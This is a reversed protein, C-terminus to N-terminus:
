PNFEQGIPNDEIHDERIDEQEEAITEERDMLDDVVGEDLEINTDEGVIGIDVNGGVGSAEKAAYLASGFVSLAESPTCSKGYEEKIFESQAPQTGSGINAYGPDNYNTKDNNSIGYVYAGTSDVGGVLMNLNEQIKQELQESEAIVGQFFSDKFQHQRGLDAITLGYSSLVLNEIKEQVLNRYEEASWNAVHQVGIGQPPKDQSETIIRSNIKNRLEEALSLAGAAVCKINAAPLQPGITSLKSESHEHEIASMQQTTLLRDAGLIVKPSDSGYGTIAAVGVTM